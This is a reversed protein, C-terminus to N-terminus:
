YSKITDTTYITGYEAICELVAFLDDLTMEPFREHLNLLTRKVDIM